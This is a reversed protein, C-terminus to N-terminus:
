GGWGCWFLNNQDIGDFMVHYGEAANTFNAQCVGDALTRFYLVGAGTEDVVTYLPFVATGAPITVPGVNDGSVKEAAFDRFTCTYNAPMISLDTGAERNDLWWVETGTEQATLTNGKISAPVIVYNCNGFVFSARMLFSDGDIHTIYGPVDTYKIITDPDYTYVITLYYGGIKNIPDLIMHSGDGDEYFCAADTFTFIMNGSENTACYKTIDTTTGTAGDTFTLVGDQELNGKSRDRCFTDEVGDGNWDTKYTLVTYSVTPDQARM